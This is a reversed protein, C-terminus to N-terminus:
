SRAGEDAGDCDYQRGTQRDAEQAERQEPDSECDDDREHESRGPAYAGMGRAADGADGDDGVRAAEDGRSHDAEDGRRRRKRRREAEDGGQHSDDRQGRAHKAPAVLKRGPQPYVAEM